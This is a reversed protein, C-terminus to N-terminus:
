ANQSSGQLGAAPLQSGAAPLCSLDTHKSYGSLQRFVTLTAAQPNHHQLVLFHGFFIDLIQFNPFFNLTKAVHSSTELPKALNEHTKRLDKTLPQGM